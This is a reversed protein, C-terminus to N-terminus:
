KLIFQPFLKFTDPGLSPDTLELLIDSLFPVVDVGTTTQVKRNKLDYIGRIQLVVEDGDEIGISELDRMDDIFADWNPISGENWGMGGHRLGLKEAFRLIIAIENEAGNLDVVIEKRMSSFELSHPTTILRLIYKMQERNITFTGMIGV